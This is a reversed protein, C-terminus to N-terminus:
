AEFDRKPKVGEARLKEVYRSLAKKQMPHAEYACSGEQDCQYLQWEAENLLHAKSLPFHSTQGTAELYQQLITPIRSM